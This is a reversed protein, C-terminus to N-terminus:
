TYIGEHISRDVKISITHLKQPPLISKDSYHTLILILYGYGNIFNQNTIM